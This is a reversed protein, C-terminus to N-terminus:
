NRYINKRKFVSQITWFIIKVDLVFSIHQVYYSDEEIRKEMSASNRSKAQSYGTIGPKVLYKQFFVEPYQSKDGVPSPRPGVFSMSGLLVNLIQPLEDLSTKRLFRGVKTVRFDDAANYTTGDENRIDPANEMMSRFKFMKFPKMSKGLRNDLYFISGGDDLKIAIAVPIFILIAFPLAVISLLIDLLRKLFIKYM